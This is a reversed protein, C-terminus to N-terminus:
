RGFLSTASLIFQQVVFILHNVNILWRWEIELYRSIKRLQKFILLSKRLNDSLHSASRVVAKVLWNLPEELCSMKVSLILLSQNWLGADRCISPSFCLTCKGNLLTSSWHIATAAKYNDFELLFCDHCYRLM